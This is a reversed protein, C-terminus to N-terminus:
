STLAAEYLEEFLWQSCSKWGWIKTIPVLIYSSHWLTTNKAAQRQVGELWGVCVCTVELEVWDPEKRKQRFPNFHTVGMQHHPLTVASVWNEPAAQATPAVCHCLSNALLAWPIWKSWRYVTFVSRVEYMNVIGQPGWPSFCHAEEEECEWWGKSSSKRALPMRRYGLVKNICPPPSRSPSPCLRHSGEGKNGQGLVPKIQIAWAGRAQPSSGVRGRREWTPVSM